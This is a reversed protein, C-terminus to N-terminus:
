LGSKEMVELITRELREDSEKGFYGNFIDVVRGAPDIVYVMPLSARYTKAISDGPMIPYTAGREKMFAEPDGRELYTIGLVTVNRDKYREYLAQLKPISEVCPGCWTAWFDMVVVKGRLGKLSVTEGSYTTLTWDPAPKGIPPYSGSYEKQTYGELLDIQFDKTSFELGTMLDELEVVIAGDGWVDKRAEVRYLWDDKEGFYYTYAITEAEHEVVVCSVNGVKEQGVIIAGDAPAKLIEPLGSVPFVYQFNFMQVGSRYSPARWLIKGQEDLSYSIGDAVAVNIKQSGKEGKTEALVRVNSFQGIYRGSKPIVKVHGSTEPFQVALTGEGRHVFTYSIGKGSNIKTSYSDVISAVDKEKIKKEGCGLFSICVVLILVAKVTVSMDTIKM